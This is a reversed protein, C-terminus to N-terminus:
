FRFLAIHGSPWFQYVLWQSYSRNQGSLFCFQYLFASHAYNPNSLSCCLPITTGKTFVCQYFCAWWRPWILDPLTSIRLVELTIVWTVLTLLLTFFTCNEEVGTGGQATGSVKAAPAPIRPSLTSHSQPGLIYIKHGAVTEPSQSPFLRWEKGTKRAVSSSTGQVLCKFHSPLTVINTSLRRTKWYFHPVWVELYFLKKLLKKSIYDVHLIFHGIHYVKTYAHFCGPHTSFMDM